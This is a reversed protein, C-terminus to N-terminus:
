WLIWKLVRTSCNGRSCRHQACLCMLHINAKFVMFPPSFGYYRHFIYCSIYQLFSAYQLMELQCCWSIPLFCTQLCKVTHMNSLISNSRDESNDPEVILNWIKKNGEEGWLKPEEHIDRFTLSPTECWKVSNCTVAIHSCCLNYFHLCMATDNVIELEPRTTQLANHLM